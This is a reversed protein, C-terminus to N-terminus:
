ATETVTVAIKGVTRRTECQRHAAAIDTVPYIHSVTPKLKGQEVWTALQELDKSAAQLHFQFSQRGPTLRSLLSDLMM